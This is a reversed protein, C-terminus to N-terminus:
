LCTYTCIVRPLSVQNFDGDRELPMGNIHDPVGGYREDDDKLSDKLEDKPTDKLEDKLTDKLETDTDHIPVLKVGTVLACFILIEWKMTLRRLAIM